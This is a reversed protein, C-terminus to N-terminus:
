EFVVMIDRGMISKLATELSQPDVPMARMDNKPFRVKTVEKGMHYVTNIGLLRAPLVIDEISKKINGSYEAIRVKKGLRRSLEAVVKGQKGILIGVDTGSLILVARGLDIAKVFKAESINHTENIDVLHKSIAIDLETIEGTSKKKGCADCLFESRLCSDCLPTQM